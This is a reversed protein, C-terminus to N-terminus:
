PSSPDETNEMVIRFIAGSKTDKAMFYQKDLRYEGSDDEAAWSEEDPIGLDWADLILDQTVAKYSAIAIQAAIDDTFMTNPDEWYMQYWKRAGTAKMAGFFRRDLPQFLSTGGGPILGIEINLERAKAEVEEQLHASFRDWFLFLLSGDAYYDRIRQLYRITLDANVWGGISCDVWVDSSDLPIKFRSMARQTTGNAIFLPPLAEGAATITAIITFGRRKDLRTQVQVAESGKEAITTTPPLYNNWKTEDMNLIHTLDCRAFAENWRATFEDLEPKKIEPRRSHRIKRFSLHNRDLFGHLWCRTASFSVRGIREEEPITKWFDRCERQLDLRTCIIGKHIYNERIRDAMIQEQADTFSRNGQYHAIDPRWSPDERNTVRWRYLTSLRVNSDRQLQSMKYESPLHHEFTDFIPELNDLNAKNDNYANRTIVPVIRPISPRGSDDLPRDM